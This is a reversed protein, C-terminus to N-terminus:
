DLGGLRCILDWEAPSVPQVSLRPSKVLAMNALAANQKCSELTVPTLPRLPRLWVSDWRPDDTTSDPGATKTIEAIGVIAKGINSHYFFALDGRAMARLNNRAQYNRIGTWESEGVATLHSWGFEDPESKLLWHNVWDGKEM